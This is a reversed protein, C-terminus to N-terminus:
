PLHDRIYASVENGGHGDYVGFLQVGRAMDIDELNQWVPQKDKKSPEPM